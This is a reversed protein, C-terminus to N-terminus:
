YYDITAQRAAGFEIARGPGRMEDRVPRALRGSCLTRTTRGPMTTVM